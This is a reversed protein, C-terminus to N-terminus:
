QPTEPPTPPSPAAAPAPQAAPAPPMKAWSEKDTPPGGIYQFEGRQTGFAPANPPNMDKGKFRDNFTDQMRKTPSGIFPALKADAGMYNPSDPQFVSFADQQKARLMGMQRDVEEDWNRVTEANGGRMLKPVVEDTMTRRMQTLQQAQPDTKTAEWRRELTNRDASTLNPIANIIPGDSSLKGNYMDTLLQNRVVASSEPTPPKYGPHTNGYLKEVRDWASKYANAIKEDGQQMAPHTSLKQLDSMAGAINREGTPGRLSNAIGTLKNTFDGAVAKKQDTDFAKQKADSMKGYNEAANQLKDADGPDLHDGHRDVYDKMAQDPDASKKITGMAGGMTIQRQGYPVGEELLRAADAPKLHPNSAILARVHQDYQKRISDVSSPSNEAARTFGNLAQDANVKTAVGALSSTDATTHEWLHQRAQDVVKQAYERGGPTQQAQVFNSAWPEFTGSMFQAQAAQAQNPDSKLLGDVKQNWSQLLDAYQGAFKAGTNGIEQHAAFQEANETQTGLAHAALGYTAFRKEESRAIQEHGRALAEFARAKTEAGRRLASSAQGYYAGVRRAAQVYSEVGTETPHVKTDKAFYENIKPM